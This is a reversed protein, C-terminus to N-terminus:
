YAFNRAEGLPSTKAALYYKIKHDYSKVINATEDTSANDWFIIEWNDYTQNYISDIAEKLYKEGNYCNMLISVLPTNNM